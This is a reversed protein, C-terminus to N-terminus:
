KQLCIKCKGYFSTKDDDLSFENKICVQEIALKLVDDSFHVIVGCNNCMFHYYKIGELLQYCAPINNFKKIFNNKELVILNRYITAKSVPTGQNNLMYEMQDATLHKGSNAELLNMILNKQKTKKVGFSM